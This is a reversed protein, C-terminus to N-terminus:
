LDWERVEERVRCPVAGGTDKGGRRDAVAYGRKNTHGQNPTAVPLLVLDSREEFIEFSRNLEHTQFEPIWSPSNWNHVQMSERSLTM